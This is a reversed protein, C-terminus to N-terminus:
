MNRDIEQLKAKRQKRSSGISKMDMNGVLAIDSISSADKQVAKLLDQQKGKWQKHM